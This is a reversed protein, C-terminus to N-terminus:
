KLSDTLDPMISNMMMSQILEPSMEKNETIYPVLDNLGNSSKSESGGLILKIAEMDKEAQIDTSKSLADINEETVYAIKLTNNAESKKNLFNKIQINNLEEDSQAGNINQQLRKLQTQTYEQNLQPSLGNGYPANIFKDLESDQKMGKFIKTAKKDKNEGNEDGDKDEQALTPSLKNRVQALNRNVLTKPDVPTLDYDSAINAYPYLYEPENVNQFCNASGDTVGMVCNRGNTAYKVIMPNENLEIVKEYAKIANEKDNVMTYCMALYYYGLTDHPNKRVYSICEQLCGAFNSKKYKIRISDLTPNRYFSPSTTWGAPVEYNSYVNRSSERLYDNRRVIGSTEQSNKYNEISASDISPLSPLSAAQIEQKESNTKSSSPRLSNSFYDKMVSEHEPNVNTPHTDDYLNYNKLPNTFGFVINPLSGLLLTAALILSIKKRM